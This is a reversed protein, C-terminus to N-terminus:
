QLDSVQQDRLEGDKWGFMEELKKSRLDIAKRFVGTAEKTDGKQVLALGLYHWAKSDKNSKKVVERLVRIAAETDGSNYLAIGKSLSSAQEQPHAAALLCVLLGVLLVLFTNRSKM